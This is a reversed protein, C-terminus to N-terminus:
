NCGLAAIDDATFGCDILADECISGHDPVVGACFSPHAPDNCALGGETGQGCACLCAVGTGVAGGIGGTGGGTGCGSACHSGGCATVALACTSLIALGILRKIMLHTM